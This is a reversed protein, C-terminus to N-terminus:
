LRLMDAHLMTAFVIANGSPPQLVTSVRVAARVAVTLERMQQMLKVEESSVAAKVPDTVVVQARVKARGACNVSCFAVTESALRHSSGLRAAPASPKTMLRAPSSTGHDLMVISALAHM